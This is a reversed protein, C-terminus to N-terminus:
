TRQYVCRINNDDFDIFFYMRCSDFKLDYIEVQCIFEMNQGKSNKPTQDWQWWEPEDLFEILSAIEIKSEVIEQFNQVTKKFDNEFLKTISLANVKFQPTLIGNPGISFGFDDVNDSLSEFNHEKIEPDLFTYVLPVQKEYGLFSLDIIALPFFNDFQAFPEALVKHKEPFFAKFRFSDM